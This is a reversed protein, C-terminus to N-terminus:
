PTNSTQYVIQPTTRSATPLFPHSPLLTGSEEMGSWMNDREKGTNTSQQADSQLVRNGVTRQNHQVYRLARFQLAKDVSDHCLTQVFGWRKVKGDGVFSFLLRGM